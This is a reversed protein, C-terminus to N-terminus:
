NLFGMGRLEKIIVLSVKVILLFTYEHKSWLM